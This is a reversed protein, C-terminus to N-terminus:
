KARAVVALRRKRATQSRSGTTAKSQGISQELRQGLAVVLSVAVCNVAAVSRIGRIQAERIEFHVDARSVLPSLTNDTIAIIQAGQVRALDVVALTEPAYPSFSVAILASGAGVLRAQEAALGGVGDILVARRELHSLAYAMYAAIPFSRRQAVLGIVHAEALLDVAAELDAQRVDQRLEQLSATIAGILENMIGLPSSGDDRGSGAERIRESYSGTRDVLRLRFIRQMDSFGAFGFHKAFRVLSSPQVKARRSIEAVTELAMENPFAIAFEAIQRLRKPLRAHQVAIALKLGDYDTHRTM